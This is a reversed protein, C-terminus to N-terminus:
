GYNYYDVQNDRIKHFGTNLGGIFILEFFKQSVTNTANGNFSKIYILDSAIGCNSPSTDTATSMSISLNLTTNSSGVLARDKFFQSGTTVNFTTNVMIENAYHAYNNSGLRAGSIGANSFNMALTEGSLSGTGGGYWAVGRAASSSGGSAYCWLCSRMNDALSVLAPSLVCYSQLNTLSQLGTWTVQLLHSDFQIAPFGYLSDLVGANVIRPQNGSTTQVANYGNGSQDYWTTVFGSAGHCFDLLRTTDIKGNIFGIDSEANDSNRRVRICNGQYRNRLKRLSFSPGPTIRIEDLVCAKTSGIKNSYTGHFGM